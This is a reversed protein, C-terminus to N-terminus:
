NEEITHVFHTLNPELLRFMPVRDCPLSIKTMGLQKAQHTTIAQGPSARQLAVPLLFVSDAYWAACMCMCTCMPISIQGCLM